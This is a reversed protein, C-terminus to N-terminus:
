SDNFVKYLTNYVLMDPRLYQQYYLWNNIMMSKRLTSDEILKQINEILDNPEKFALYNQNEKFDGPLESIFEESVIAKSKAIYEGMKWGISKHLGMTSICISSEDLVKFYGTKSVIKSDNICFDKYNKLSYRSNAFGGIFIDGFEKRCLQICKARTDNIYRMEEKKEESRPIEDPDWTRTLFLIKPNSLYLPVSEINNYNCVEWKFDNMWTSVFTHKLLFKLMGPFKIIYKLELGFNNDSTVLYNFGLPFVRNSNKLKPFYNRSCGRKFYFDFDFNFYEEPINYDDRVDYIIKVDNVVALLTQNHKHDKASNKYVKFSNFVGKNALESFGAYVQQLHRNVSNIYLECKMTDSTM